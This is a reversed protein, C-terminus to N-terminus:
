RDNRAETSQASLVEVGRFRSLTEVLAAVKDESCEGDELDIAVQLTVLQRAM